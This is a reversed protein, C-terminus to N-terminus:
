IEKRENREEEKMEEIPKKLDKFFILKIGDERDALLFFYHSVETIIGNYFGKNKLAVHVKTKKNLFYRALNEDRIRRMEKENENM